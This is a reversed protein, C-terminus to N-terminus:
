SLTLEWRNALLQTKSARPRRTRPAYDRPALFM